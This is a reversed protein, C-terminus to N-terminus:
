LLYLSTFRMILWIKITEKKITYFFLSSKDVLISFHSSYTIFYLKLNQLLIAIYYQRYISAWANIISPTRKCGAITIRQGEWRFSFKIAKYNFTKKLINDSFHTLIISYSHFFIYTINKNVETNHWSRMICLLLDERSYTM